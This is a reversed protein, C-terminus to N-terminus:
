RNWNEGERWHFGASEPYESKEGARNLDVGDQVLANRLKTVALDRPMCKEELSLAAALGAAHGTAMCNGMSKGASAAAHDTSICRGGVLLGDLKEPLISRYPVDHTPMPETRVFGIDLVGSRWAVGDEFSRGSLSDEETLVYVGKVRRTERIGLQPGTTIIEINQLVEGGFERMADVMQLVQRRSTCEAMSLQQADTADVPGLVRTGAHNIYFCNSSPFRRLGWRDPILPYREKAKRAMEAM